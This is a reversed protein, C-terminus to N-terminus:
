FVLKLVVLFIMEEIDILNWYYVLIEFIFSCIVKSGFFKGYIFMKELCM